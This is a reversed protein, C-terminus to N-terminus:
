SSILKNELLEDINQIHHRFQDAANRYNGEKIAELLKEHRQPSSQISMKDRQTRFIEQIMFSRMTRYLNKFIENRCVEIIHGHFNYDASIRDEESDELIAEKMARIEQALSAITRERLDWDNKHYDLLYWLGQQEMVVRLELLESFSKKGLLMSWILAESSVNSSESVYTGSPLKIEIIGMYQFIKLAERISSRGVNFMEALKYESPVKDKPNLKGAMILEKIKEMIQFVLTKQKIPEIEM